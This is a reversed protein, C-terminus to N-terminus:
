KKICENSADDDDFQQEERSSLMSMTQGTHRRKKFPLQEELQKSLDMAQPQADEEHENRKVPPSSFPFHSLPLASRDIAAIIHLPQLASSSAIVYMNNNGNTNPHLFYAPLSHSQTVPFINALQSSSTAVSPIQIPVTANSNLLPRISHILGSDLPYENYSSPLSSSPPM